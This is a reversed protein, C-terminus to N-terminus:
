GRTSSGPLVEEADRILAQLDEVQGPTRDLVKQWEPGYSRLFAAFQKAKTGLVRLSGENDSVVRPVPDANTIVRDTEPWVADLTALLDNGQDLIMGLDDGTGALATSLERLM